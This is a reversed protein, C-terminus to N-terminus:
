SIAIYKGRRISNHANLDCKKLLTNFCSGGVGWKKNVHFLFQTMGTNLHRNVNIAVENRAAVSTSDITENGRLWGCGALISLGYEM